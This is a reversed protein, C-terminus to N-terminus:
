FRANHKLFQQSLMSETQKEKSYCGISFSFRFMHYTSRFETGICETLLYCQKTDCSARSTINTLSHDVKLLVQSIHISFHTSSISWFPHFQHLHIVTFSISFFHHFILETSSLHYFHIFSIFISSVPFFQCFHIFSNM